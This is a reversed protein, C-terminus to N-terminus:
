RKKSMEELENIQDTIKSMLRPALNSGPDANLTQSIMNMMMSLGHNYKKEVLYFEIRGNDMIVCYVGNHEYVRWMIVASFVKNEKVDEPAFMLILYDMMIKTHGTMGQTSYKAKGVEYLEQLDDRTVTRIIKGFNPFWRTSQDARTVRFGHINNRAEVVWDVIRPPKVKLPTATSAEPEKQTEIAQTEATQSPSSPTPKAKKERPPKTAMKKVRGKKKQEPKPETVPTPEPEPVPEPEPTPKAKKKVPSRKAISKVRGRKRPKAKASEKALEAQEEELLKQALEEDIRLQEERERDMDHQIKRALEEDLEIQRPGAKIKKKEPEVMKEKGKGVYTVAEKKKEVTAGERISVGKLIPRQPVTPRPPASPTETAVEQHTPVSAQPPTPVPTSVPTSVPASVPPDIKPSLAEVDEVTKKIVNSLGEMDIDEPESEGKEKSAGDDVREQVTEGKEKEVVTAKPAEIKEQKVKIITEILEDDSGKEKGAEEDGDKEDVVIEEDVKEESIHEDDVQEDDFKEGKKISDLSSSSSSLVVQAQGPSKERFFLSELSCEDEVHKAPKSRKTKTAFRKKVFKKQSQVLKNVTVKLLSVQLQLEMIQTHQMAISANMLQCLDKLEKTLNRDEDGKSPTGMRPSDSSFIPSADFRTQDDDGGKTDQSRPGEHMEPEKSVKISSTAMAQTKTINGSDQPPNDDMVTTAARVMHDHMEETVVEKTLHPPMEQPERQINELSDQEVQPSSPKHPSSVLTPPTGKTKKRTFTKSIPPTSQLLSQPIKLPPGPQKRTKHAKKPTPQPDVPTEQTQSHSGEGGQTPVAVMTSFLPTDTGSFGKIARRMNAFVKKTHSLAVFNESISPGGSPISLGEINNNLFTQVFRPYMLFKKDSHELNWLMGNFILKSFNFRDNKALCIVASAITSSFENWGTRKQSLCQLVTHILFRWQPSVLSKYFTLKDLSGEYGMLRLNDFISETSLFTIGEADDLHLDTRITAETITITKENITAEIQQIDNVANLTATSWFQRIHSTYITPHVTLAYHIHSQRLFDIIQHFDHNDKTKSLFAVMNHTDCYDLDAM